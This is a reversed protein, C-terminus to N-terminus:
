NDTSQTSIGLPHIELLYGNQILHRIAHSTAMQIRKLGAITLLQFIHLKEELSFIRSEMQLGDRLAEDELLLEAGTETSIM